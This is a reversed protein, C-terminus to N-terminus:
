ALDGLGIAQDDDIGVLFQREQVAQRDVQHPAHTRNRARTRGLATDRGDALEGVDRRQRVRIAQQASPRRAPPLAAPAPPVAIRTLDARVM